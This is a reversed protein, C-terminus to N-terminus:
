ANEFIIKKNVSFEKIIELWENYINEAIEKLNDGKEKECVDCFVGVLENFLDDGLYNGNCILDIANGIGEYQQAPRFETIAGKDDKIANIAIFLGDHIREFIINDRIINIAIKKVTEKKM